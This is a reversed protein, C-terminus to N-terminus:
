IVIAGTLKSINHININVTKQKNKRQIMFECWHAPDLNIKRM